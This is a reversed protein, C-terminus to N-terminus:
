SPSPNANWIERLITWAGADDRKLIHLGKGHAITSEGGARPTVRWSYAYTHYGLGGDAGTDGHAYTLWEITFGTVFERLWQRLEFGERAHDNPPMFVAEPALLGEYTHMDGDSMAQVEHDVLAAIAATDRDNAM